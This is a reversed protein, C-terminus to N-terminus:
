AAQSNYHKKMMSAGTIANKLTRRRGMAVITQAM